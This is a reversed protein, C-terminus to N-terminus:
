FAWQFLILQQSGTGMDRYTGAAGHLALQRGPLLARSMFRAFWEWLDSICVYIYTNGESQNILKVFKHFISVLTSDCYLFKSLVQDGCKTGKECPSLSCFTAVLNQWFNKCQSEVNSLYQVNMHIYTSIQTFLYCFNRSKKDFTSLILYM